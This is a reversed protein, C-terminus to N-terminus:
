DVSMIKMTGDPMFRYVQADTMSADAAL